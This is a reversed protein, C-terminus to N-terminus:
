RRPVAPPAHSSMLTARAALTARYQALQGPTLIPTLASIKWSMAAQQSELLRQHVMQPDDLGTPDQMIDGMDEVVSAHAGGLVGFSENLLSWGEPRRDIAQSSGVRLVQLAEERQAESLDIQGILDALDRQARSEIDNNKERDKLAAYADLQEDDLVKELGKEFQREALEAADVVEYLPKGQGNLDRFGDRRNELMVAMMDRQKSSLGLAESLRNLRASSARDTASGFSQEFKMQAETTGPEIERGGVGRSKLVLPRNERDRFKSSRVEQQSADDNVVIKADKVDGSPKVIWGAAFGLLATATAILHSSKM